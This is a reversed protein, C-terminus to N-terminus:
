QGNARPLAVKFTAGGGPTDEVWIRGRHKEVLEKAIALGLGNGSPTGSKRWFPEFIMERQETAVGEGHDIVEVMADDSVRVLVTGGVPEARLANDILNAVVSEIARCSGKVFVPAERDEFEIRKGRDLVLVAYDAVIRWVTKALDVNERFDPGHENLRAAALLQEVIVGLQSADRKLDSKLTPQEPGELRARMIALPTRLEHAANATFRRQAAVGKEVRSLAANVAEVFPVVESPLGAVSVRRELANMDIEAVRQAAIGLPALGRRVVFWSVAILALFMPGFYHWPTDHFQDRLYYLLDFWHFEYGYLAIPLNGIPTKTGFDAIPNQTLPM